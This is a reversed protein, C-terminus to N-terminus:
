AEAKGQWQTLSYLHLDCVVDSLLRAEEASLPPDPYVILRESGGTSPPLGALSIMEPPRATFMIQPHSQRLRETRCQWLLNKFVEDLLLGAIQEIRDRSNPDMRIVPVNGLYPLVREDVTQLCDVVLMPVNNRKAEIM